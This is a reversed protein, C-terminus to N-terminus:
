SLVLGPRPDGANRKIRGTITNGCIFEGSKCKKWGTTTNGSSVEGGQKGAKRKKRGTTSNGGNLERARHIKPYPNTQARVFKSLPVSLIQKIYVKFNNKTEVTVWGTQEIGYEDDYLCLARLFGIDCLVSRQLKVISGVPLLTQAQVGRPGDTAWCQQVVRGECYPGFAYTMIRDLVETPFGAPFLPSAMACSRTHPLRCSRVVQSFLSSDSQKKRLM